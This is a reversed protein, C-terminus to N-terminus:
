PMNSAGCKHCDGYYQVETMFINCNHCRYQEKKIKEPKKLVIGTIAFAEKRDIYQFDVAPRTHADIYNKPWPIDTERSKHQRLAEDRTYIHARSLDTTYGRGDKAWWIVDNGTYSRSDQLYFKDDDSQHQEVWENMRDAYILAHDMSEHPGSYLEATMDDIRKYVCWGGSRTDNIAYYKKPVCGQDIM